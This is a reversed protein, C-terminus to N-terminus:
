EDRRPTVGFAGDRRQLSPIENTWIGGDYTAPIRALDERTDLGPSIERAPYAGMLIVSSRAADMRNMFRNPWGWLWPAVNIPVFQASDYCRAPVIGTWSYAIYRVLCSAISGASFTRLSPFRDRLVSLTGDRAFVMLKPLQAAPLRSLHEVLLAADAPENDKVDILFSRRPFEHFVEDMSPMLGIGKGRLPYTHGGDFTYGYGIDLRKLEEM